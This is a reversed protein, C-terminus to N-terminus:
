RSFAYLHRLGRVLLQDPAIAPTAFVAEGVPNVSTVELLPGAPVVYVNGDDSTLYLNGGAAVPSAAFTTPREGAADVPESATGEAGGTASPGGAVEQPVFRESFMRLGTGADFCTLTGDRQLLFLYDGVVIPTAILPGVDAHTWAVSEGGRSGEPLSIDGGAGPRVAYFPRGPLYGSGVFILGQAFIPTPVAIESSPTLSWRQEGTAADYGRIARGGNTVVEAGQPGAVVTPTAWSSVEDRPTRWLEAGDVVDFAALFAGGFVDIQVIVKGDHLIPSGATGWQVTPDFFWGADLLGLDVQWLLNGDRDYCFLGQSGFLAVIHEGDTAPTSNNFTGKRLRGTRPAGEAATREWLVEGTGRDIALILWRHSTQDVVSERTDPIEAFFRPPPTESVATTVYVRDEWVIPSAHALGPIETKWALNEGAVGDFSEPLDAGEVVGSAGPGRFSPWNAAPSSQPTAQSGQTPSAPVIACSLAVLLGVAPLRGMM